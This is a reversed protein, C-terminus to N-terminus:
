GRMRVALKVGGGVVELLDSVAATASELGMM